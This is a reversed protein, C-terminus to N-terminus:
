SKLTYLTSVVTAVIGWLLLFLDLWSWQHKNRGYLISLRWHFLPPICFSVVAVCLCGVLSVVRVFGPVLVAILVCLLVIGFRVSISHHNRHSLLRGEVIQSCPVVLLPATAVITASLGLRTLLPIWANAQSPIEHLVDSELSPFLLYLGIGLGLYLLSVISVAWATARELQSPEAMSEYFNYTLPVIGFGFVVIGFWHSASGWSETWISLSDVNENAASNPNFRDHVGYGTIVVFAMMLVFLGIVSARTLYDLNPVLSLSAMAIGTITADTMPGFSLPTDAMFSMIAAIYAIIIGLLLLIMMADLVHLGIDGFAYWAVRAFTSIGDHLSENLGTDNLSINAQPLLDLCKLLRNICLLNWAGIAIMGICYLVLGGQQCAFPLALCGTGMCTKMLNIITSNVTSKNHETTIAEDVVIGKIILPTTESASSSSEPSVM